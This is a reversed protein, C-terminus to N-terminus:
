LTKTPQQEEVNYRQENDNEGYTLHVNQRGCIKFKDGEFPTPAKSIFDDMNVVHVNGTNMCELVVAQKGRERLTAEHAIEAFMSKTKYYRYVNVRPYYLNYALVGNVAVSSCLLSAVVYQM